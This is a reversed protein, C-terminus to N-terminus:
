IEWGSIEKLWLWFIIRLENFELVYILFIGIAYAFSAQNWYFYSFHSKSSM